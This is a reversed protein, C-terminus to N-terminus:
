TECGVGDGDSDFGHPDSGVVTFNRHPIDGCDLDPPPPPICVTPYSPDCGSPPPPAPGVDGRECGRVRDNGPGGKCTDTGPGGILRDNGGGGRLVDRGSNGCITDNGGGGQVRDNGGGAWIVDASGTGQLTNNRNNGTITAQKGGCSKAASSSVPATPSLALVMALGILSPLKRM